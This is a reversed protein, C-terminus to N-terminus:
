HDLDSTKTENQTQFSSTRDSDCKQEISQKPDGTSVDISGDYYFISISCLISEYIYMACLTPQYPLFQQKMRQFPSGNDYRYDYSGVLVPKGNTSLRGALFVTTAACSVVVCVFGLMAIETYRYLIDFIVLMLRSLGDLVLRM